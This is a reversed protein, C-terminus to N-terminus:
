ASSTRLTMSFIRTRWPRTTLVITGAESAGAYAKTGVLIQQTHEFSVAQRRKTSAWSPNQNFFTIVVSGKSNGVLLTDAGDYNGFMDVSESWTGHVKGLSGLHGAVAVTRTLSGDLNRILSSEQPGYSVRLTGNLGLSPSATPTTVAGALQGTSLLQRTELAEFSLSRVHKM